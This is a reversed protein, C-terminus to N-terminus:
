APKQAVQFLVLDSSEPHYDEVLTFDADSISDKLRQKSFGRVRPFLGLGSLLPIVFRWVGPPRPMCVSSSIYYGGPKLLAHIKANVGDIDEILQLINLGLVVDYQRAAPDIDAIDAVAFDVNDIGEASKKENAIAIMNKSYDIADIHRVYPAHLLATSGTGCGFEFVDSDPTLYKRTLALKHEYAAQDAIPQKAYRKAMLDFLLVGRAM